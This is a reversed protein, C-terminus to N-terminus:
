NGLGLLLTHMAGKKQSSIEKAIEGERELSSSHNKGKKEVKRGRGGGTGVFTKPM